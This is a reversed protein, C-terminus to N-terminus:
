AREHAFQFFLRSSVVACVMTRGLSARCIATAGRASRAALSPVISKCPHAPLLDRCNLPRMAWGVRPATVCTFSPQWFGFWPQLVKWCDLALSVCTFSLWHKTKGDMHGALIKTFDDSEKSATCGTQMPGWNNKKSVANTRYRYQDESFNWVLGVWRSSIAPLDVVCWCAPSLM